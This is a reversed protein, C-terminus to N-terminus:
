LEPSTPRVEFKGDAPCFAPSFFSGLSGFATDTDGFASCFKDYRCNLPSAFCEFSCELQQYLVDFSEGGLAAQFGHGGLAEYRLLLVMISTHLQALQEQTLSRKSLGRARCYLTKLKEYHARGIRMYPKADPERWHFDVIGGQFVAHTVDAESEEEQQEEGALKEAEASIASAIREADHEQMGGRVLDKILGQDSGRMCPLLPEAMVQNAALKLQEDLKSRCQWREFALLPVAVGLKRCAKHLKSRLKKM